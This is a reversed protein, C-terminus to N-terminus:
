LDWGADFDPDDAEAQARLRQSDERSRLFADSLKPEDFEGDDLLPPEVHVGPRATPETEPRAATHPQTARRVPVRAVQPTPPRPPVRVAPFSGSARRRVRDVPESPPAVPPADFDPTRRQVPIEYQGSARRVAAFQGSPRRAVTFERARPAPEVRDTPARPGAGPSPNRRWDPELPRLERNRRASDVAGAPADPITFLGSRRKSEPVDAVAIEDDDDPEDPTEIIRFMGTSWDRRRAASFGEEDDRPAAPARATKATAHRAAPAVGEVFEAQAIATEAQEDLGRCIRRLPEVLERQVEAGEILCINLAQIQEAPFAGAIGEEWGHLAQRLGVDLGIRGPLAMAFDTVHMRALTDFTIRCIEGFRRESFESRAGMGVFLLRDFPLRSELPTLMTEGFHGDVFDRLMLKSIRGNLRWDVRGALGRLPRDDAFATLVLCVAREKDLEYLGPEAYRLKM